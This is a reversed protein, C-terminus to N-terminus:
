EKSVLGLRVLGAKIAAMHKCQPRAPRYKRDPCSCGSLDAPLDYNVSGDDDFRTLTWGALGSADLVPSLVYCTWEEQGELRIALETSLGSLLAERARDSGHTFRVSGHKPANRAPRSCTNTTSAM